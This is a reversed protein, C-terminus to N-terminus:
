RAGSPASRSRFEGRHGRSGDLRNLTSVTLVTHRPGAAPRRIEGVLLPSRRWRSRVRDSIQRHRPRYADPARRHRRRRIADPYCCSARLACPLDVARTGALRLYVAFAAAAAVTWAAGVLLRRVRRRGAPVGAGAGRDGAAVRGASWVDVDAVDAVGATEAVDVMDAVLAVDADM